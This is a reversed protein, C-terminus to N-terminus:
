ESTKNNQRCKKFRLLSKQVMHKLNLNDACSHESPLAPRQLAVYELKNGSSTHPM